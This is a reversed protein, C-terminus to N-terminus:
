LGCRQLERFPCLYTPRAVPYLTLNRKGRDAPGWGIGCAEVGMVGLVAAGFTLKTEGPQSLM